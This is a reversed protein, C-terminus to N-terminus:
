MPENEADEPTALYLGKVTRRDNPDRYDKAVLRKQKVLEAIFQRCQKETKGPSHRQVVRWAARVTAKPGDSYRSGLSVGKDEDPPVGNDIEDLIRKLVDDSIGDWTSPPTWPVMTQVSDGNPYLAEGNGLAVGVIKFWRAKELPPTINVKGSDVRVFSRREAEQIGFREAEDMSMQTLTYVLRAGNKVASAGRGRDANGPDAAGKSTHHLVDVAINHEVALTSLTQIVVDMASNDNEEVDHAKVLPDLILVDINHARIAQDVEAKMASVKPRRTRPDATVLKGAKGEPASLFLWGEVEEPSIGHHLMAALARRRLEDRDDELSVFLVRCRQFVKEDTLNRGTALALAQLIRLASKGVGGDALLSSVFTRCYVNGLLWKRPSITWDDDGANWEGLASVPNPAAADALPEETALSAPEDDAPLQGEAPAAKPEEAVPAASELGFEDCFDAAGQRFLEQVKADAEADYHRRWDPDIESALYFITGAGISTPPSNHFREWRKSTTTACYKGSKESWKDWADFGEESGATAAWVAMGIRVWSDYDEDDNPIVQLAAAVMAADEAELEDAPAAVYDAPRFAAPFPPLASLDHGNLWTYGASPPVIVYGGDGRVDVGNKGVSNRIPADARFYLHAGGSGTRVIAPSLKEWGPVAAYGDKDNKKDLDLVAIGTSTGTPVGILADPHTRWWAEIQAKDTTANHFGGRGTLPAKHLDNGPRNICPFVAYGQAAWELAGTLFSNTM